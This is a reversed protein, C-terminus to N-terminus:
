VKQGTHFPQSFNPQAHTLPLVQSRLYDFVRLTLATSLVGESIWPVFHPM